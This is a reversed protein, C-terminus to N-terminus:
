NPTFFSQVSVVGLLDQLQIVEEVVEVVEVVQPPSPEGEVVEVEVVQPPSPEGEVM